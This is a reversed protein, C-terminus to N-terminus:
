DDLQMTNRQLEKLEQVRLRTVYGKFVQNALSVIGMGAFNFIMSLSNPSADPQYTVYSNNQLWIFGCFIKEGVIRGLLPWLTAEIFVDFIRTSILINGYKGRYSDLITDGESDENDHLYYPKADKVMKYYYKNQLPKIIYSHLSIFGYSINICTRAINLSQDNSVKLKLAVVPALWRLRNFLDYDGALGLLYLPFGFIVIKSSSPVSLIGNVTGGYVDLAKTTSIDCLATLIEEPFVQRLQWLGLQFWLKGLNVIPLSIAVLSIGWRILKKGWYSLKLIISDSTIDLDSKKIYKKCQPCYVSTIPPPLPYETIMKSFCNVGLTEFSFIMPICIFTFCPIGIIPIGVINEVFSINRYFDRHGDFLYCLRKYLTEESILGNSRNRLQQSIHEKNLSYLWKFYCKKHIQLQCGCQHIIWTSDFDSDDLCVWCHCRKFPLGIM